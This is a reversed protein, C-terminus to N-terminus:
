PGKTYTIKFMVGTATTKSLVMTTSTLSELKYLNPPDTARGLNIYTDSGVISIQYTSNGGTVTKREGTPYYIWQLPDHPGPTWTIGGNLSQITSTNTWKGYQFLVDDWCLFTLMQSWVYVAAQKNVTGGPGTASFSYTTPTILVPTTFSGTTASLSGGTLSVSTANTSAWNIVSTKSYWITDPTATAILTPAPPTTCTTCPSPTIDSSKQCSIFFHIAISMFAIQLIRKMFFYKTFPNYNSRLM